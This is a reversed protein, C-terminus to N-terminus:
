GHADMTGRRYAILLASYNSLDLLTDDISEYNPEKGSYLETLRAIKVGILTLFVQEVTIGAIEASKEFNSFVNGRSAYDMSKALVVQGMEDLVKMVPHQWPDAEIMTGPGFDDAPVLEPSPAGFPYPMESRLHPVDAYISKDSM